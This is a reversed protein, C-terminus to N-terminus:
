EIYGLDRLAELAEPSLERMEGRAVQESLKAELDLWRKLEDALKDAQEAHSQSLDKLEHPDDKINYLESHGDAFLHFKFGDMRVAHDQERYSSFASLEPLSTDGCILPLLNQGQVVPPPTAGALAALTPYLDISRVQQSVVRNEPIGLGSFVLPIHTLAEGM